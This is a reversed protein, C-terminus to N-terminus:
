SRVRKSGGFVCVFQGDIWKWNWWYLIGERGGVAKTATHCSAGEWAHKRPKPVKGLPGAEAREVVPQGAIQADPSAVMTPAIAGTIGLPVALALATAIKGRRM